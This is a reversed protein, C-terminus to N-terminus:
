YRAPQDFSGSEEVIRLVPQAPAPQAGQSAYRVGSQNPFPPVTESVLPVERRADRPELGLADAWPKSLNSGANRVARRLPAPEAPLMAAAPGATFAPAEEIPASIPAAPIVPPATLAAPAAAAHITVVSAASGAPVITVQHTSPRQYMAGAPLPPVIGELSPEAARAPPFEAEAPYTEIFTEIPLQEASAPPLVDSEYQPFADIEVQPATPTVNHPGLPAM